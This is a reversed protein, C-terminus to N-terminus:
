FITLKGTGLGFGAQGDHSRKSFERHAALFRAMARQTHPIGPCVLATTDSSTLVAPLDRAAQQGPASLGPSPAFALALLYVLGVIAVSGPLGYKESKM